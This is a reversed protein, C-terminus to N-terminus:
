IKRSKIIDLYVKKLEPTLDDETRYDKIRTSIFKKKKKLYFRKLGLADFIRQNPELSVTEKSWSLNDLDYIIGMALVIIAPFVFIITRFFLNSVNIFLVSLAIILSLIVMMIWESVFLREKGLTDLRVTAEIYKDYATLMQEFYRSDQNTKFDDDTIYTFSKEIDRYYSLELHGEDWEVIEDVVSSKETLKSFSEAFEKNKFFHEAYKIMNLGNSSRIGQISRIESYRSWLEFIFFGALFGFLISSITLIVSIIEPDIEPFTFYSKLFWILTFTVFISIISKWNKM